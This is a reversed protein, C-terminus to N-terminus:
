FLPKLFLHYVDRGMFSAVLVVGVIAAVGGIRRAKTNATDFANRAGCRLIGVGAWIAWLVFVGKVGYILIQSDSVRGVTLAIAVLIFYAIVGNLLASRLLGLRGRWHAVIYNWIMAVM